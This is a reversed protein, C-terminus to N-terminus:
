DPYVRPVRSGIGCTVEYNITNWTHAIQDATIEGDGQKGILVVEDGVQPNPIGELQVMCQDMCVRGIVPAKKGNILVENGPIRRYGDAYGLPIVGILENKTTIYKHGYSVGHNAPLVKISALVSKWSLVPQIGEPLSVEPSPSLGYMAIGPRILNFHTKPHALSGASNAMHIIEPLLDQQRLDQIIQNFKEEQNTTTEAKLDDAKALHSFLGELHVNQAASAASALSLTEEPMCGLRGMGTDVLLHVNAPRNTRSAAQQVQKLHDATWITLSVDIQIMEEIREPPIYGLVLIKCEIGEARMKLAMRARAVGFWKVGAKVAALTVPIFGHGYANAKVVAMIPTQTTQQIIKINNQLANLDVDVWTSFTQNAKMITNQKGLPYKGAYLGIRGSFVSPPL